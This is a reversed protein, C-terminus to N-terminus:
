PLSVSPDEAHPLILGESGLRWGADMSVLGRNVCGGRSEFLRGINEDRVLRAVGFAKLVPREATLIFVVRQKGRPTGVRHSVMPRQKNPPAPLPPVDLLRRTSPSTPPPSAQPLAPPPCAAVPQGRPKDRCPGRDQQRRLSLPSPSLASCVRSQVDSPDLPVRTLDRGLVLMGTSVESAATCLRTSRGAQARGSLHCRSCLKELAQLELATRHTVLGVEHGESAKPIHHGKLTGEWHRQSGVSHDRCGRPGAPITDTSSPDTGRSGETSEMGHCRPNAARDPLGASGLLSQSMCQALFQPPKPWSVWISCRVTGKGAFGSLAQLQCRAPHGFPPRAASDGDGALSLQEEQGARTRVACCCGRPHQDGGGDGDRM